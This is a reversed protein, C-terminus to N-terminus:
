LIFTWIRKSVRKKIFTRRVFNEFTGNFVSFTLPYQRVRIETFSDFYELFFNVFLFLTLIIQLCSFYSYKQPLHTFNCPRELVNPNKTTLKELFVLEYIYQVWKKKLGM